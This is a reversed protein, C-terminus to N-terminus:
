SPKETRQTPSHPPVKPSANSAGAAPAGEEVAPLLLTPAPDDKTRNGPPAPAHCALALDTSPRRPKGKDSGALTRTTDELIQVKEELELFRKETDSQFPKSNPTSLLHLLPKSITTTYPCLSVSLHVHCLAFSMAADVEVSTTAM